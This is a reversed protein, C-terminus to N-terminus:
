LPPPPHLRPRTAYKCILRHGPSVVVSPILSVYHLDKYILAIVQGTDGQNTKCRSEQKREGLGEVTV